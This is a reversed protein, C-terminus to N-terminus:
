ASPLEKTFAISVRTGQGESSNLTLRAGCKVALKEVLPLGLGM